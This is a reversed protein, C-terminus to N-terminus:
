IGATPTYRSTGPRHAPVRRSCAVRVRHPFARSPRRDKTSTIVQDVLDCVPKADEVKSRLEHLHNMTVQLLQQPCSCAVLQYKFGMTMLDFLQVGLLTPPRTRPYALM